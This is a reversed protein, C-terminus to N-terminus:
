QDKILTVQATYSTYTALCGLFWTGEPDCSMSVEKGPLAEVSLWGGKARAYRVWNKQSVAAPLSRAATATVDFAFLRGTDLNAWLWPAARCELEGPEGLLARVDAAHTVPDGFAATSVPVYEDQTVVYAAAGARCAAMFRPATATTVSDISRGKEDRLTFRGDAYTVFACHKEACGMWLAEAGVEAVAGGGALEVLMPRDGARTQWWQEPRVWTRSANWTVDLAYAPPWRAPLDWRAAAGDSGVRTLFFQNGPYRGAIWATLPRDGATLLATQASPGEVPPPADIEWRPSPLAVDLQEPQPPTARVLRFYQRTPGGDQPEVAHILAWHEGSPTVLAALPIEGKPGTLGECAALLLLAAALAFNRM